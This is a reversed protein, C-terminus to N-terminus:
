RQPRKLLEAAENRATRNAEDEKELELFAIIEQIDRASARQALESPLM